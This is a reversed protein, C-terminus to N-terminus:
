DGACRFADAGDVHAGVERADDHRRLDELARGVSGVVVFPPGETLARRRVRPRSAAKKRTAAPQPPSSPPPSSAVGPVSEAPPPVVWVVSAAAGSGTRPPVSM